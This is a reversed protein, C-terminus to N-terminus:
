YAIRAQNKLLSNWLTKMWFQLSKKQRNKSQIFSKKRNSRHRLTKFITNILFPNSKHNWANWFSSSLKQNYLIKVM